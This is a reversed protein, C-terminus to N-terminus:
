LDLHFVVGNFPGWENITIVLYDIDIGIQGEFPPLKDVHSCAIRNIFGDNSDRSIFNVHQGSKLSIQQTININDPNSKCSSSKMYFAHFQMIQPFDVVLEPAFRGGIGSSASWQNRLLGDVKQYTGSDLLM